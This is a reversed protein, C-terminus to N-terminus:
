TLKLINTHIHAKFHLHICQIHIHSSEFPHLHSSLPFLQPPSIFSLPSTPSSSISILWHFAQHGDDLHLCHHQCHGHNVSSLQDFQFYVWLTRKQPPPSLPLSAYFFPSHYSDLSRAATTKINLKKEYLKRTRSNPPFNPIPPYNWIWPFPANQSDPANCGFCNELLVSETKHQANKLRHKSASKETNTKTKEKYRWM